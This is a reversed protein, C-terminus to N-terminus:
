PIKTTGNHTIRRRDETRQGGDETQMADLVAAMLLPFMIEHHGILNIGTGTGETPRLVVNTTPRYHRQFDMNVTTIGELSHDLNRVVSVAKLFVEPIIVASGLNIFVGQKLTSVLTCFLRFDYHSLAGTAAGDMEPHMHIIDTGIAVHVTVPVGLRAAAALLSLNRHPTRRQVLAEGVARGLGIGDTKHAQLVARHIFEGTERAMGFSGLDLHAAVDESTKGALAIEVDHIIGAGNLAIGSLIGREMADILIPNLGVKIPHAGMGLLVTRGNDVARAVASVANRLDDAGLISPLSEIFRLLSGGSQWPKAFLDLGVKSPRDFLSTQKLGALDIPKWEPRTKGM